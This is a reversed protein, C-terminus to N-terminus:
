LAPPIAPISDLPAAPVESEPSGESAPIAASSAGSFLSISASTRGANPVSINVSPTVPTTPLSPPAQSNTQTGSFLFTQALLLTAHPTTTTVVPQTTQVGRSSDGTSM